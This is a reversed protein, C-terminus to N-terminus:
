TKAQPRSQLNNLSHGMKKVNEEFCTSQCTQLNIESGRSCLLQPKKLWTVSDQFLDFSRGLIKLYWRQFLFVRSILSTPALAVLIIECQCSKKIKSPSLYPKLAFTLKFAPKCHTTPRPLSAQLFQPQQHLMNSTLNPKITKIMVWGGNLTLYCGAGNWSEKVGWQLRRGLLSLMHGTMQGHWIGCGHDNLTEHRILCELLHHFAWFPCQCLWLHMQCATNDRIQWLENNHGIIEFHRDVSSDLWFWTDNILTM